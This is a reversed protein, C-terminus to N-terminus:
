GRGDIVIVRWQITSCMSDFSLDLPLQTLVVKVELYARILESAFAVAPFDTM